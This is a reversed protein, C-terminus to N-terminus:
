TIHLIFVSIYNNTTKKSFFTVIFDQLKYISTSGAIKEIEKHLNSKIIIKSILNHFNM